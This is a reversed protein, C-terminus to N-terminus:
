KGKEQMNDDHSAYVQLYNYGTSSREKNKRSYLVTFITKVSLEM